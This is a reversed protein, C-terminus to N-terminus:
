FVDYNFVKDWKCWQHTRICSLSRGWMAPCTITWKFVTLIGNISHDHLPGSMLWISCKHSWRLFFPDLNYIEVLEDYNVSLHLSQIIFSLKIFVTFPSPQEQITTSQTTKTWWVLAAYTLTSIMLNTQLRAHGGLTKKENSHLDFLRPAKEKM